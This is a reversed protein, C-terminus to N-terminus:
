TQNQPLIECKLNFGSEIKKINEKRLGIFASLEEQPVSFTIKEEINNKRILIESCMTAYALRSDVIHKMAPHFPGIRESDSVSSNEPLGFSICPINNDYLIKLAKTGIQITEELTLPKYKGNIFMEMLETEPLIVVPYIRIFDPNLSIAQRVGKLFTKETEGPLGMMLQIGLRLGAESILKAAKVTSKASHGRHSSKLVQDSFSQAGIEVTQVKKEKLFNIIEENLFDPRTSIRIGNVVGRSIWKQSANLFRKQLELDIGTFSGGFFAIEKIDDIFPPIGIKTWITNESKQFPKKMRQPSKKKKKLSDVYLNLRLDVIEPGPIDNQRTVENQNCFVCNNPCGAHPIFIPIILPKM